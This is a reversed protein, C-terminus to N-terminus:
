PCRYIRGKTQPELSTVGNLMVVFMKTDNAFVGQYNSVGDYWSASQKWPDSLREPTGGCTANISTRCLYFDDVPAGRDPGLACIHYLYDGRLVISGLEPAGRGTSDGSTSLITEAGGTTSLRHISRYDYWYIFGGQVILNSISGFDTANEFLSTPVMNPGGTIPMSFVHRSSLSYLVGGVATVASTRQFACYANSGDPFVWPPGTHSGSGPCINRWGDFGTAYSTSFLGTPHSGQNLSGYLYLRSADMFLSNRGGYPRVISSPSGTLFCSTTGGEYFHTATSGDKPVRWIYVCNSNTGDRPATAYLNTADATVGMIGTPTNFGNSNSFVISPAGGSVPARKLHDVRIGGSQVEWEVWYVYDGDVIPDSVAQYNILRDTVLTAGACPVGTATGGTGASSTGGTGGTGGGGAGASSPCGAGSTSGGMGGIGGSGATGAGGSAGSSGGVGGRGGVGGQGGRGAAGGTGAGAAGGASTGAVGGTGGGGGSQGGRGAPGGTGGGSAGGAATGAAGGIAGGVGLSGAGAGGGTGGAGGTGGVGTSTCVCTGYGSGSANCSQAGVRGDTCACSVAVGPICARGAGGAGGTGAGGGGGCGSAFAVVWVVAAIFGSGALATSRVGTV